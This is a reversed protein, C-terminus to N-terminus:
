AHKARCRGLMPEQINKVAINVVPSLGCMPRAGEEFSVSLNNESPANFSREEFDAAASNVLLHVSTPKVRIPEHRVQPGIAIRYSCTLQCTTTIVMSLGSRRLARSKSWM